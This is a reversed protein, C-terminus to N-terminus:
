VESMHHTFNRRPKRKTVPLANTAATVYRKDPAAEEFTLRIVRCQCWYTRKKARCRAESCEEFLDGLYRAASTLAQLAEFGLLGGAGVGVTLPPM